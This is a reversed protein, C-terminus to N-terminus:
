PRSGNTFPSLIQHSWGEWSGITSPSQQSSGLMTQIFIFETIKPM